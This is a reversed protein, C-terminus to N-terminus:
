ARRAPRGIITQHEVREGPQTTFLGHPPPSAAEAPSALHGRPTGSSSHEGDAGAALRARGARQAAAQLTAPLEAAGPAAASGLVRARPATSAPAPRPAAGQTGEAPGWMLKVVAAEARSQFRALLQDQLTPALTPHSRGPPMERGRGLGPAPEKGAAEALGARAKYTAQLQQLSPTAPVPRAAGSPHGGAASAGPVLKQGARAQAARAQLKEQLQAELSSTAPLPRAGSTHDGPDPARGGDKGSGLAPRQEAEAQAARARFKAQLQQQMSPGASGAGDGRIHTGPGPKGEGGKGVPAAPVQGPKAKAARAQAKARLQEQLSPPAAVHHGPSPASEGGKGMGVAAATQAWDVRAQLTAQLEKHIPPAALVLRNVPMPAGIGDAERSAWKPSAAARETGGMAPQGFVPLAAQQAAATASRARAAAQRTRIKEALESQMSPPKPSRPLAEAPRLGARGAQIDALSNPNQAPAAASVM